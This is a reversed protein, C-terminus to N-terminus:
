LSSIYPWMEKGIIYLGMILVFWGFAPKLRENSVVKSLRAGILIGVIAISSFVLL